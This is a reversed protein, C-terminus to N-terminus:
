IGNGNSSEILFWNFKDKLLFSEITGNVKPVTKLGVSSTFLVM